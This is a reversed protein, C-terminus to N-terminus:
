SGSLGAQVMIQEIQQAEPLKLRRAEDLALRLLRGAEDRNVEPGRQLLAMAVKARVILLSRV